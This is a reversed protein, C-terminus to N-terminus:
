TYHTQYQVPDKGSLLLDHICRESSDARSWQMMGHCYDPFTITSSTEVTHSIQPAFGIRGGNKQLTSFNNFFLYNSCLFVTKVSPQVPLHCQSISQRATKSVCFGWACRLRHRVLHKSEVANWAKCPKRRSRRGGNCFFLVGNSTSQKQFPPPLHIRRLACARRAHADCGLPRSACPLWM